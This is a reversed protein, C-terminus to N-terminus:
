MANLSGITYSTGKPFHTKQIFKDRETVSGFAILMRSEQLSADLSVWKFVSSFIISGCKPKSRYRWCKLQNASGRLLILAPDRAEEQLRELRTLNTRTVSRHSSGVEEASPVGFGRSPRRRRKTTTTTPEGERRRRRRLTPQQQSPGPSGEEEQPARRRNPSSQLTTDRTTHASTESSASVGARRSASTPLYIHENKYHVSWVKNKSYRVSDEYFLLFYSKSGDHEVYYLGDYDVKGETKHWKEEADQYYINEWNVYPFANDKDDDFWVTVEYGGKKFCNKPPSAFLDSSTEQLTWTEKSFQSKALSKLVIGMHIATKANHESVRSAPIHHLGLHSFGEKKCYYELVHFKRLLTYYNIISDLDTPGAEILDSLAKQLADLRETLDRQNM